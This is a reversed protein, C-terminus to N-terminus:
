IEQEISQIDGQTILRLVVKYHRLVRLNKYMFYKLKALALIGTYPTVRIKFRGVTEALIISFELDM